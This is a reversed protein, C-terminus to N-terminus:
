KELVPITEKSEKKLIQKWQETQKTEIVGNALGLPIAITYWIPTAFIDFIGSAKWPDKGKYLLYSQGGTKLGIYALDFKLFAKVATKIGIGIKRLSLKGNEDEYKYKNTRVENVMFASHAAFMQATLTALSNTVHQVIEPTNSLYQEILGQAFEATPMGAFIFPITGVINSQLFVTGARTDLTDRLKERAKYTPSKEKINDWSLAKPTKDGLLKELGKSVKESTWIPISSVADVYSAGTYKSYYLFRELRSPNTTTEM